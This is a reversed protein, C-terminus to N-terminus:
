YNEGKTVTQKLYHFSRTNQYVLDSFLMHLDHLDFTGCINKLKFM